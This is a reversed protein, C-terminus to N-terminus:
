ETQQALMKKSKSLFSLYLFYKVVNLIGTAILMIIELVAIVRYPVLAAVAKMIVTLLAIWIIVRLLTQGKAFVADDGLKLAIKGIGIVILVTTITGSIDIILSSLKNVVQNDAFFVSLVEVALSLLMLFIVGRFVPEDKSTQVVGIISFVLAVITLLAAAVTSLLVGITSAGLATDSAIEEQAGVLVLFITSLTSLVTAILMLLEGTFLKNVGKRANPFSM